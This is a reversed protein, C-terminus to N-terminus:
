ATSTTAGLPGLTAGASLPTGSATVYQLQENYQTFGGLYLGNQAGVAFSGVPAIYGGAVNATLLHSPQIGGPFDGGTQPKNAFSFGVGVGVIAVLAVLAWLIYKNM